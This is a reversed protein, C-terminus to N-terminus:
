QGEIKVLGFLFPGIVQSAGAPWMEAGTPMSDDHGKAGSSPPEAARNQSVPYIAKGVRDLFKFQELADAVLNGCAKLVKSEGFLEHPGLFELGKLGHRCEKHVVKLIGCGGKAQGQLIKGEMEIIGIKSHISQSSNFVREVSDIKM